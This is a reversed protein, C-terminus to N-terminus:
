IRRIPIVEANSPYEYHPHLRLNIELHGAADEKDTRHIVNWNASEIDNEYCIWSLEVGPVHSLQQVIQDRYTPLCFRVEDIICDEGQKLAKVILPLSSSDELVNEFVKAGTEAKMKQALYTKGSGSLGLIFTVKAMSTEGKALSGHM